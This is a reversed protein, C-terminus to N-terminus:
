TKTAYCQNISVGNNQLVKKKYFIALTKHLDTISVCRTYPPYKKKKLKNM